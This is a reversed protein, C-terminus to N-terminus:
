IIRKPTLICWAKKRNEKPRKTDVNNEGKKEIVPISSFFFLLCFFVLDNKYLMWPIQYFLRDFLIMM